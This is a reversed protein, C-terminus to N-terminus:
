YRAILSVLAQRGDSPVAFHPNRLKTIYREDTLNNLNLRVGFHDSVDFEAHADFRLYGDARVLNAADAYRESAGYAGGGVSFQPTVQWSVTAAVNHEPTQPLVNGENASGDRLESDLYTYGVLLSVPGATGSASIEFGQIRAQNLIETVEGTPAFQQINDREIRFLAGSLLLAGEMLEAKAGAEWNETAQPEYLGNDANLDDGGEGVTSGPPTRANAYSVYLSTLPTPKYVIGAQYSWFDGENEAEFPTGRVSGTGSASFDTWRIGGNLLLAPTITLTDFAYLSFEEASAEATTTSASISGAWADSPDPDTLSTCNLNAFEAAPCTRDGSAVVYPLNTTDSQNYEFGLSLSHLLSGTAFDAALNTNSGIGENQSNRSKVSRWVAGEAVNGASDDPNTAIYDNGTQTWRTTNSLVLGDAIEGRVQLTVADAVSEQFDRALLGYFNDYDVDAPERAGDALQGSSTLPIGYDPLTDTQLHYYDLSATFSEGANVTISPAIGWRDDYVADRGPVMSDHYLGVMRLAVGESLPANADATIRVLEDTGLTVQGTAFQEDVRAVKSVLNIAGAAAGRGGLVTSPGKAIEIREVAFIERSQSGVDRVGDVFVDGTADVGRILPIDASATGGEGAGLTIGPVTRFAEELSFSASDEIVEETIVNVIRPTDVVTATAKPSSLEEVKYEDEIAIGNVIVGELRTPAEQAMAPTSAIFGVCGLAVFGATASHRNQRM